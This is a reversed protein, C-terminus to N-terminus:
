GPSRFCNCLSISGVDGSKRADVLRDMWDIYISRQKKRDDFKLSPSDIETMRATGDTHM